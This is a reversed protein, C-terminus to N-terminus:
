EEFILPNQEPKLEIKEFFDYLVRLTLGWLLPVSHIGLDIGYMTFNPLEKHPFTRIHEQLVLRTIPIWFADQAEENLILSQNQKVLFVHPALCVRKDQDIVPGYAYDLGGFWESETLNLGLEEHTERLATALTHQDEVECAGGPFAIHGSWPDNPHIARQMFLLEIDGGQVRFVLAVAANLVGKKVSLVEHKQVLNHRIKQQFYFPEFCELTNM